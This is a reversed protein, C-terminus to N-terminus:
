TKEMRHGHDLRAGKGHASDHEGAEAQIGQMIQPQAHGRGIHRGEGDDRRGQDREGLVIDLRPNGVARHAVKGVNDHTHGHQGLTTHFPADRGYRM